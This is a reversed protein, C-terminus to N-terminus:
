MTPIKCIQKLENHLTKSITIVEILKMEIFILM